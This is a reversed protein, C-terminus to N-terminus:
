EEDPDPGRYAVASIANQAASIDRYVGSAASAARELHGTATAVAREPQGDFRTGPDIRIRGSEVERCLAAAVQHLAQPIRSAIATLEGLVTYADPAYRWGPTAARMGDLTRHNFDRLAQAAIELATGPEGDDAVTSSFSPYDM